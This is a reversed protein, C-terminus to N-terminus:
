KGDEGMLKLICAVKEEDNRAASLCALLDDRRMILRDIKATLIKRGADAVALESRANKLEGRLGVIERQLEIMQRYGKETYLVMGAFALSAFIFAWFLLGPTLTPLM